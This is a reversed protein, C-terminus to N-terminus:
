GSVAPETAESNKAAAEIDSDLLANHSQAQVFLRQLAAASKGFLKTVDTQSELLRKGKDDCLTLSILKQKLGRNDALKGDKVKSLLLTEYDERETGTMCRIFVDGGWEPMPVKLLKMDNSGFIESLTLAM